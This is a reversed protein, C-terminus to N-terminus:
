QTVRAIIKSVQMASAQLHPYLAKRSIYHREEHYTPSIVLGRTIHTENLWPPQRSIKVLSGSFNLTLLCGVDESRLVFM